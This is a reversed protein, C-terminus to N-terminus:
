VIAYRDICFRTEEYHTKLNSLSCILAYNFQKIVKTIAKARNFKLGQHFDVMSHIAVIFRLEPSM